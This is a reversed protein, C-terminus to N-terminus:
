EYDFIFSLNNSIKLDEGRIYKLPLTDLLNDKKTKIIVLTHYRTEKVLNLLSKDDFVIKGMMKLLSRKKSQIALYYQNLDIADVIKQSGDQSIAGGTEGSMPSTLSSKHPLSSKKMPIQTICCEELDGIELFTEVGLYRFLFGEEKPSSGNSKKQSERTIRKVFITLKKPFVKKSQFDTYQNSITVGQYTVEEIDELLEKITEKENKLLLLKFKPYLFSVSKKTLIHSIKDKLYDFDWYKIKFPVRGNRELAITKDEIQGDKIKHPSFLCFVVPWNEKDKSLIDLIKDAFDELKINPLSKTESVMKRFKDRNSKSEMKWLYEIDEINFKAMGDFGGQSGSSSPIYVGGLKTVLEALCAEAKQWDKTQNNSM